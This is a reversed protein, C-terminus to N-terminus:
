EVIEVSKERVCVFVGFKVGLGRVVIVGCEIAQSVKVGAIVNSKELCAFVSLIKVHVEAFCRIARCDFEPYVVNM